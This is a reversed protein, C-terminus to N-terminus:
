RLGCSSELPPILAIQERVLADQTKGQHHAAADASKYALDSYQILLDRLPGPTAPELNARILATEVLVIRTESAVAQQTAPDNWDSPTAATRKSATAMAIGANNWTSCAQTKATDIEAPSYAPATPPTIVAIRHLTTQDSGLAAGAYAVASAALGLVATAALVAGRRRRRPMSPHKPLPEGRKFDEVPNQPTGPPAYIAM